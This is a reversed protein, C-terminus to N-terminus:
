NKSLQSQLLRKKYAHLCTLRDTINAVRQDIVKNIPTTKKIYWFDDLIQKFQRQYENQEIKLSEIYHSFKKVQIKEIFIQYQANLQQHLNPNRVCNILPSDALSYQSLDISRM